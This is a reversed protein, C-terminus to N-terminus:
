LGAQPKVHHCFETSEPKLSSAAVSNPIDALSFDPFKTVLARRTPAM